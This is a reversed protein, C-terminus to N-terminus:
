PWQIAAPITMTARLASALSGSGIEVVAAAELDTAVARFPIPLDDFGLPLGYPLALRSLFLDVAHGQDLGPALRLGDRLGLELRVPYQRRDEKRRLSKLAYDVEGSFLRDWDISGVLTVM